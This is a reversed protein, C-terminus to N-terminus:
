RSTNTTIDFRDGSRYPIGVNWHPFLMGPCRSITTSLLLSGWAVWWYSILILLYSHPLIYIHANFSTWQLLFLSTAKYQLVIFVRISRSLICMLLRHMERSSDLRAPAHIHLFLHLCWMIYTCNPLSKSRIISAIEVVAHNSVDKAVFPLDRRLGATAGPADLVM